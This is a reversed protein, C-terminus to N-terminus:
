RKCKRWSWKHCNDCSKINWLLTVLCYRDSSGFVECCWAAELSRVIRLVVSLKCVHLSYLVTQCLSFNSKFLLLWNRVVETCSEHELNVASGPIVDRNWHPAPLCIQNAWKGEVVAQGLKPVPPATQFEKILSNTLWSLTSFVKEVSHAALVPAFVLRKFILLKPLLNAGLGTRRKLKWTESSWFALGLGGEGLNVAVEMTEVLFLSWRNGKNIFAMRSRVSFSCSCPWTRLSVILLSSAPPHSVLRYESFSGTRHEALLVHVHLISLFFTACRLHCDMGFVGVFFWLLSHPPNSSKPCAFGHSIQLSFAFPTSSPFSFPFLLFLVYNVRWLWELNGKCNGKSEKTLLLQHNKTLFTFPSKPGPNLWGVTCLLAAQNRGLAGSFGSSILSSELKPPKNKRKQM